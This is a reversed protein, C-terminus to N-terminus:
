KQGFTAFFVNEVKINYIPSIKTVNEEFQLLDQLINMKKNSHLGIPPVFGRTQSV